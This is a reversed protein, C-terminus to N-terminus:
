FLTTARSAPATPQLSPSRRHRSNGLHLSIRYAHFRRREEVFDKRL